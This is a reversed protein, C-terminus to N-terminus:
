LVVGIVLLLMLGIAVLTVYYAMQPDDQFLGLGQIFSGIQGERSNVPNQTYVCEYAEPVLFDGIFDVVGWLLGSKVEEYAYNCCGGKSLTVQGIDACSACKYIGIWANDAVVHCGHRECDKQFATPSEFFGKEVSSCIASDQWEKKDPAIFSNYAFIALIIIAVFKWRYNKDRKLRQILKM